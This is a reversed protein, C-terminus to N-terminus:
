KQHFAYNIRRLDRALKYTVVYVVWSIGMIISYDLFNKSVYFFVASFPIYGLISCVLTYCGGCGCHSDKWRVSHGCSLRRM